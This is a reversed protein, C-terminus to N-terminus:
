CNVRLRGGRDFGHCFKFWIQEHEIPITLVSSVEFARQRAAEAMLRSRALGESAVTDTDGRRSIGRDSPKEDFLASTPGHYRPEKDTTSTTPLFPASRLLETATDSRDRPHTQKRSDRFQSRPNTLGGAQSKDVTNPPTTETVYEEQSKSEADRELSLRLADQLRRNEQELHDIRANSPRQSLSSSRLDIGTSHFQCM